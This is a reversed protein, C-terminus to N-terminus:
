VREGAGRHSLVGQGDRAFDRPAPRCYQRPQSVPQLGQPLLEDRGLSGLLAKLQGEDNSDGARASKSLTRIREIQELFAPGSAASMTDGLIRGLMSVNHRLSAYLEDNM